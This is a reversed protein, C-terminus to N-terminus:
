PPTVAVLLGVASIMLMMAAMAGAAPVSWEPRRVLLLLTVAGILMTVVLLVFSLLLSTPNM